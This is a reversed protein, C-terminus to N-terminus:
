SVILFHSQPKLVTVGTQVSRNEWGRIGTHSTSAAACGLGWPRGSAEPLPLFSWFVMQSPCRQALHQALHKWTEKEVEIRMVLIYNIIHPNNMHHPPFQPEHAKKLNLTVTSIPLSIAIIPCFMHRHPEQHRVKGTAQLSALQYIKDKPFM